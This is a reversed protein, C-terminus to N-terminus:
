SSGKVVRRGGKEPGQPNGITEESGKPPLYSFRDLCWESVNGVLDMIANEDVRAAGMEFQGIPASNLYRDEGGIINAYKPDPDGHHRVPYHAGWPYAPTHESDSFRAAREWEAETPLRVTKGEKETAWECFAAADYWTVNVVPHLALEEFYDGQGRYWDPVPPLERDTDECFAMYQANTVELKGIEFASMEVRTPPFELTPFSDKPSGMEFSGAPVSVFELESAPAKEQALAPAAVIGVLASGIFLLTKLCTSKM